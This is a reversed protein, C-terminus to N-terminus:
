NVTGGRLTGYMTSPTSTTFEYAGSDWAGSSPRAVATQAPCSMTHTTANYACGDTTGYECANAADTGIAPESFGALTTCYALHNAGGGVTSNTNSTPACPTTDNACTYTQITGGSSALYGQSVGTANTMAVNTGSSVGTCATTGSDFPTNILHENYVTLYQGGHSVTSVYCPQAADVLTNNFMYQGGTNTCSYGSPGAYAWDNSNTEIDYQLNNFWYEAVSEPCFWWTVQGQGHLSSDDHRVINNYFVNPQNQPLGGGPSGAADDNCEMVNAHTPWIPNYFHEFINDHIDHCWQGVGQTVYRIMNRRMHYMSPFTGWGAITPLSDSGDIVNTDITQLGNGGGGFVTIPVTNNGGGAASTATWGHIYLNQEFFMGTGSIGSGFYSVYTDTVGSNPSSDSACLGTMEFNDLIVYQSGLVMRNNGGSVQYTCSGVLSTSTSNDANLIPRVWSGGSYWTKDVGYYICGSQTGEFVCTSATGTTGSLDWTGGTYPSAGSNGFHWTDGGRFIYGTGSSPTNSGCTNACNPMGPAHLWPTSESTGNNTDLGGSSIYYCTTIGSPIGAPCAAFATLPLFLFIWLWKM